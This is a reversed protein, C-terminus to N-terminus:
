ASLLASTMPLKRIRKGTASFVANAVAPALPPVGPEGVGTPAADSPVIYVEIEPTEAMTLLRYDHFNSQVVHGNNLNIEGKLAATLAFIAGGEVQAKVTDPNVVRGCDIAAVLRHVTIQNDASVSVEAVYALWSRFSHYLAIGQSRGAAPTGWNAKEAALELVGRYRPSADKLLSLRFALPDAEAAHALEDIFSELIFANQSAGVSRWSGITVAPNREIKRYVLNPIAYPIDVGGIGKRPGVFSASLVSLKGGETVGGELRALNAPRYFGGQISEKMTGMLKIPMEVAQAIAAAETVYDVLLRRGFGGGIFTPHVTIKSKSLGTVAKVADIAGSQHQTPVWVECSDSRLDITCNMPEMPAHALFPTQYIAEIRKDARELAKKVDGRDIEEDGREALGDHYLKAIAKDDQMPEDTKSWRVKLLERAKMAIPFSDAVVAVGADVVVVKQVGALAKAQSDDFSEVKAGLVPPRALLAVKMGAIVVDMGFVAEGKIKALSDLTTTPKGILRYDAPKKLVVDDPVPYTAALEAVEGYAVTRGSGAHVVQGRSARCEAVPVQWSDAAAQILMQRASAGAVRLPEWALRISRSGGTSGMGSRAIAFETKIADLAVELEEALLMSLATIVGQGMEAREIMFTINNDFGVRIWANPTFTGEPKPYDDGRSCGPLYLGLMLGGGLAASVKLFTRRSSNVLESM